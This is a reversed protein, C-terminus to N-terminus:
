TLTKRVGGRLLICRPCLVNIRGDQLTYPMRRTDLWVREGSCTETFEIIIEAVGCTTKASPSSSGSRVCHATDAAAHLIILVRFAANAREAESKHVSCVHTHLIMINYIRMRRYIYIYVHAYVCM